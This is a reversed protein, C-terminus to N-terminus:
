PPLLSAGSFLTIRYFMTSSAPSVHIFTNTVPTPGENTFLPSWEPTPGIGPSGELRQRAAVGGKWRIAMNAGAREVGTVALVSHGNTPVTDAYFEAWTPMRDGDADGLAASEFDNTWGHGALWWEPVGHSWLTEAFAATVSLARTMPLTVQNGAVVAGNTDGSWGAFHYHAEATATVTVSTGATQWGEGVDVSGHAGATTQLWYNTRWQWALTAENTLTMAFTHETGSAPANGSMAWGTCVYQTTGRTDPTSVANTLATGYDNTYVGPAPVAVGHESSISFLLREWQMRLGVQGMEGDYGDVAIRYPRGKVAWFAVESTLVGGLADIDDSSAEEVLGTLTDGRYVALLTDIASARTDLRVDGSAPPTWLWWVSANGGAGPNAHLPEGPERLANVNSATLSFIMSSRPAADAFRDNSPRSIPGRKFLLALAVSGSGGSYGDVAIRYTVNSGTAFRVRSWGYDAHDDNSAVEVLSSVVAGTYVGLLTDFASGDTLVEAEGASPATWTWWVSGGGSRGAHDPEGAERTADVNSGAITTNTGSLLVAASFADNAPAACTLQAAGAVCGLAVARWRRM